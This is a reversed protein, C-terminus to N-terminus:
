SRTLSKTSVPEITDNANGNQEIVKAKFDDMSMAGPLNFTIQVKNGSDSQNERYGHRANLLVCAATVDKQEIAKKFLMSHLQWRENERGADMAEQLAPDENLWRRLTDASTDLKKAIGLVSWGDAALAEIQAACNPPPEKQKRGNKLLPRDTIKKTM